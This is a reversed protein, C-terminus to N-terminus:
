QEVRLNVSIDLVWLAGQIPPPLPVPNTPLGQAVSFGTVRKGEPSTGRLPCPPASKGRAFGPQLPKIWLPAGEKQLRGGCGKSGEAGKAGERRLRTWM